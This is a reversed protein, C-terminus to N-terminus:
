QIQMVREKFDQHKKLSFDQAPYFTDFLTESSFTFKTGHCLCLIKFRARLKLSRRVLATIKCTPFQCAQPPSPSVRPGMMLQCLWYHRLPTESSVHHTCPGVERTSLFQRSSKLPFALSAGPLGPCSSVRDRFDRDVSRLPGSLFVTMDLSVHLSM